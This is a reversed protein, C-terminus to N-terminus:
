RLLDVWGAENAVVVLGRAADAVMLRPAGGTTITQLVRRSARDVVQVKGDFTLSAYLRTGDPGLGVAFPGGSLAISGVAGTSLTIVHVLSLYDNAIYLTERDPALVMGNTRGGLTFTRKVALTRADVELVSGGERTAVYLLNGGPHVVLHHSTAPLALSDTPARSALSFRYLRDANTTVFLAAGDISLAVPLPDGTTPIVDTQTNTAVNIIGVDESFQNSVYATTGTANFTVRSPVSGVAVAATFAREALNLRSVSGEDLRTVYIVGSPSAAVFTAFQAIITATGVPGVSTVLGTPSVQLVLPDSSTFSPQVGRIPKGGTDVVSAVLQVSHRQAITTDSPGLQLGTPIVIETTTESCAWALVVLCLGVPISKM